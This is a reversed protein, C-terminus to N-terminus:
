TVGGGDLISDSAGDVIMLSTGDAIMFGSTRSLETGDVIMLSTGLLTRLSAGLSKPLSKGDNEGQSTLDYVLIKEHTLTYLTCNLKKLSAIHVTLITTNLANLM